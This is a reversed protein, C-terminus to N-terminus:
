NMMAARIRRGLHRIALYADLGGTLLRRLNRSDRVYYTDVRPLLHLAEGRARRLDVTCAARFHRAVLAAVATSTYGFPYAFSTVAAGLRDEIEVRSSSIERELEDEPLRTLDPHTLTHAGIEWDSRALDSVQDWCLVRQVDLGPPPEAWSSEGGVHRTVLFVTAGFGHRALVPRAFQYINEYGDDFTLVVTRDPWKGTGVAKEVADRLTTGHWGNEALCDMQDVFSDPHMSIVSESPDLSHYTLIPITGRRENTTM